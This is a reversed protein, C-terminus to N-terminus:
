SSFAVHWAKRLSSSRNRPLECHRSGVLGRYSMASATTAGPSLQHSFWRALRARAARALPKLVKANQEIDGPSYRATIREAFDELHQDFHGRQRDAAVAATKEEVIGAGTLEIRVDRLSDMAPLNSEEVVLANG